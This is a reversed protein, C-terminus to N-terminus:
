SSRRVTRRQVGARAPWPFCDPRQKALLAGVGRSPEDQRVCNPASPAASRAVFFGPRSGFSVSASRSTALAVSQVGVAKWVARWLCGQRRCLHVDIREFRQHDGGVMGLRACGHVDVSGADNVRRPASRLLRKM